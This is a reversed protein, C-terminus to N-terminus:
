RSNKCRDDYYQKHAEIPTQSGDIMAKINRANVKLRKEAVSAEL